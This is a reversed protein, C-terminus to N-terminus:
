AALDDTRGRVAECGLSFARGENRTVSRPVVARDLDPAHRTAAARAANRLECTRKARDSM